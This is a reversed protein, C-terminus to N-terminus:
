GLLCVPTKATLLLNQVQFSRSERLKDAQVGTLVKTRQKVVMGFTSDIVTKQRLGGAPGEGQAAAGQGSSGQQASGEDRSRDPSAM